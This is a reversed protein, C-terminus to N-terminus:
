RIADLLAPLIEGSPGRLGFDVYPSLPTENPNIEVVIIGDRKIAEVTLAAAPYVLSSTGISLYVDAQLAWALAQELASESLSEGFWVVDPRLYSGCLPCLPPVGDLTDWDLIPHGRDFCKVQQINGHLEIVNSAGAVRHLGDVNQTLTVFQPFRREFEVLAVHGPNPDVESVLSRRWAYWEWVLVPDEIFADPTALHEPEYQAWLGTQAERFTPVGSEASVGAGTLATVIEASQLAEILSPPFNASM